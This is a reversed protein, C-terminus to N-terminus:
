SPLLIGSMLFPGAALLAAVRIQEARDAQTRYVGMVFAPVLLGVSLYLPIAFLLYGPDTLDGSRPREIFSREKVEPFCIGLLMYLVAFAQCVRLLREASASRKWSEARGVRLVWETFAVFIAGEDIAFARIWWVREAQFVGADAPVTMMWDIGLLCLALALARSTPSKIGAWAFSFGMGIAVIAVILEASRAM